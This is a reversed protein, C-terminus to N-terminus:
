IGFHKKYFKIGEEINPKEWLIFMSLSGASLPDALNDNKHRQKYREKRETDKHMTYNEHLSSGFHVKKIIPENLETNKDTGIQFLATYRKGKRKSDELGLFKINFSLQHDKYFYYAMYKKGKKGITNFKLKEGYKNTLNM